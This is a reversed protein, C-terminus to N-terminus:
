RVTRAAPTNVRQLLEPSVGPIEHGDWPQALQDRIQAEIDDLYLRREVPLHPIFRHDFPQNNVPHWRRLHLGKDGPARRLTFKGHFKGLPVLRGDAAQHLFALLPEGVSFVAQGEVHTTRAGFTGGISDIIVEAGVDAGKWVDTVQVRARTWINGNDDLETWVEVVEGEVIVAAVDAMNEITLPLFTTAHAQPAFAAGAALALLLVARSLHRTM